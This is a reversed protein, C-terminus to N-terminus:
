RTRGAQGAGTAAPKRALVIGTIEPVLEDSSVDVFGRSAVVRELDGASFSVSDARQVVYYLFWLAAERPGDGDAALMFDHLVLHGGPRLAEWARDILVPIEREGVASLLYSMLVVDQTKPWTTELADGGILAIRSSLQAAEIYRRAVEIVSPFDIITSSLGAYKKCLVISFAGSGGAVDLMTSSGALDVRRSLLLAPGMSGQHQADSFLAASDPDALMERMSERPHGRMGDTLGIVGPLVLKDIQLRYYDGVFASSGKVLYRQTAPANSYSGETKVVLGLATLAALLTALRNAAIGTRQSLHDLTAPQIALAEFVNLDLAAFLAKSAMFGYAIRSIQRVDSLAEPRQITM